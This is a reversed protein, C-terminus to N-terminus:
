KNKASKEKVYLYSEELVREVDDNTFSDDVIVSYWQEQSRPFASPRVNKHDKAFKNGLAKSVKLLMMVTENVEYVFAFCTKEKGNYVYHTDALPLKGSKISNARRNVMVEKGFKKELYDAVYKKTIKEKRTSHAAIELSDKLTIREIKPAPAKREPKKAVEKKEPNPKAEVSEPKDAAEEVAKVMPKETAVKTVAVEREKDASSDILGTEVEFQNETLIDREAYYVKDSLVASFAAQMTKKCQEYEIFTESKLVTIESTLSMVFSYQGDTCSLIFKPHNVFEIWNKTKDEVAAIRGSNRCIEVAAKTEEISKYVTRSKAIASKKNDYLVFAYNGKDTKHIVYSGSAKLQKVVSDTRELVGKGFVVSLVAMLILATFVTALITFICTHIAVIAVTGVALASAWVYGIVKVPKTVIFFSCFVLYFVTLINLLIIIWCLCDEASCALDMIGIGSSLIANM